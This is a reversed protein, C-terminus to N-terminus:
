VQGARSQPVHHHFDFATVACDTSDFATSAGASATLLASVIRCLDGPPRLRDTAEGCAIGRFRSSGARRTRQPAAQLREPHRVQGHQSPRDLPPGPSRAPPPWVSRLPGCVMTGAIETNMTLAFPCGFQDMRPQRSLQVRKHSIANGEATVPVLSADDTCPIPLHRLTHSTDAIVLWPGGGTEM